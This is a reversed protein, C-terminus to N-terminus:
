AWVTLTNEDGKSAGQDETEKGSGCGALLGVSMVAALMFSVFRKKM